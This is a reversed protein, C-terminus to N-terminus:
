ERLSFLVPFPLILGMSLDGVFGTSNQELCFCSQSPLSMSNAWSDLLLPSPAQSLLPSFAAMCM